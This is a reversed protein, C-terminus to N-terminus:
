VVCRRDERDRRGRDVDAADARGLSRSLVCLFAGGVSRRRHPDDAARDRHRGPYLDTGSAARNRAIRRVRLRPHGHGRSQLRRRRHAALRAQDPRRHHGARRDHDVADGAAPDSRGDDRHLIRSIEPDAQHVRRVVLSRAPAVARSPRRVARQRRRRLRLASRVDARFALGGDPRRALRDRRFLRRSQGLGALDAGRVLDGGAADSAAGSGSVTGVCMSGVVASQPLAHASRAAVRKTARLLSEICGYGSLVSLVLLFAGIITLAIQSLNSFVGTSTEVSMATVVRSWNLGAHYFMGPVVYGYVAYVMLGINIIFLPMHRKRAYEIVLVTMLGGMFLDPPDWAGARSTGLEYYEANMYVAIALACGIYIAAIAYNAAPPLRSYLDNARLSNLVFLVYTVPVLTMALLTPGGESTWFYAFLYLFFFIAVAYYICDLIIRSWPLSTDTMVAGDDAHLDRSPRAM